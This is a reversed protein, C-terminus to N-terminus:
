HPSGVRYSAAGALVVLSGVVVLALGPGPALSVNGRTLHKVEDIAQFIRVAEVAALVVTTTALGVLAMRWERSYSGAMCRVSVTMVTVALLAVYFGAGLEGGADRWGLETEGGVAITRTAWPLIAGLLIMTAGALALWAAPRNQLGDPRGLYLETHSDIAGGVDEHSAPPAAARATAGTPPAPRTLVTAGTRDRVLHQDPLLEPPYWRGDTAQWWGEGPRVDSMPEM